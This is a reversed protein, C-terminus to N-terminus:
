RIRLSFNGSSYAKLTNGDVSVKWRKEGRNDRVSVNAPLSSGTMLSYTRGGPVTASGFDIVFNVTGSFTATGAVNLAPVSNKSAAVLTITGGDAVTLGAVTLDKEIRLNGNAAISFAAATTDATGAANTVVCDSGITFSGNEITQTGAATFSGVVKAAVANWQDGYTGGSTATVNNVTLSGCLKSNANTLTVGGNGTISGSGMLRSRENVVYTGNQHECNLVYMVPKGSEGITATGVFTIPNGDFGNMVMSGNGNGNNM